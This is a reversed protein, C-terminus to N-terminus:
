DLAVPPWAIATERCSAHLTPALAAILDSCTYCPGSEQWLTDASRCLWWAALRAADYRSCGRAILGSALGALCDGSGGQSLRPNGQENRQWSLGNTILDSAAKALVVREPRAFAHTLGPSPTTGLLARLEGGHPTVLLKRHTNSRIEERLLHLGDADIILPTDTAVSQAWIQRAVAAAEDSRGLGPGLLVADISEIPPLESPPHWVTEPPLGGAPPGAVHVLDCGSRLAAAASLSAAGPYRMGAVILLRGQHGKHGSRRHVPLRWLIQRSTQEWAAPPIGIDAVEWSLQRAFPLLEQKAAHLCVCHCPVLWCHENLGTPVDVALCPVNFGALRELVQRIAPRLAGRQGVGLIADIILAPAQLPASDLLLVPDPLARAAAQCLPSKPEQVPWLHVTRGAEVLKRAAVYGDGGNNGSGCVVLIVGSTQRTLAATAIAAGAREMLDALDCGLDEAAGDILAIESASVISPPLAM